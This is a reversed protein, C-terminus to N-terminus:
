EHTTVNTENCATVNNRCVMVGSIENINMPWTLLCSEVSRISAVQLYKTM